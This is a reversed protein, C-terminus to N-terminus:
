GLAEFSELHHPGELATELDSGAVERFRWREKLSAATRVTDEDDPYSAVVGYGYGGDAGSADSATVLASFPQDLQVRSLPVLGVM